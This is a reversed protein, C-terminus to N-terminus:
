IALFLLFRRNFDKRGFDLSVWLCRNFKCYCGCCNLVVCFRVVFLLFVYCYAVPLSLRLNLGLLYDVFM